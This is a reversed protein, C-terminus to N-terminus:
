DNFYMEPALFAKHYIPVFNAVDVAINCQLFCFCYVSTAFLIVTPENRRPM